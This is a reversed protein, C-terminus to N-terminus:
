LTLDEVKIIEKTLLIEFTEIIAEFIDKDYGGSLYWEREGDFIHYEIDYCEEDTQIEMYHILDNYRISKPLMEMLTSLSWAPINDDGELSNLIYDDVVIRTYPNEVDVDTSRFFCMDASEKKFGLELLRQSQEKTTCINM